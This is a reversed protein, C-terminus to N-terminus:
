KPPFEVKIELRTAVAVGGLVGPTYVASEYAQIAPEVFDADNFSVIMLNEVKGEPNVVFRLVVEGAVGRKKFRIKPPRKIEPKTDLRNIDVIEAKQDAAQAVPIATSLLLVALATATSIPSRLNM